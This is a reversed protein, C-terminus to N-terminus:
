QRWTAHCEEIPDPDAAGDFRCSEDAGGPVGDPPARPLAAGLWEGGSRQAELDISRDEVAHQQVLRRRGTRDDPV